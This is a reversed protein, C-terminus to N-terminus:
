GAEQFTQATGTDQNMYAFSSVTPNASGATPDFQPTTDYIVRTTTDINARLKYWLDHIFGVKFPGNCVMENSTVQAKAGIPVTRIHPVFCVTRYKMVSLTSLKTAWLTKDLRFGKFKYKHKATSGPPMLASFCKKFKFMETLTQFMYPTYGYATSTAANVAGSAATTVFQNYVGTAGDMYTAVISDITALETTSLDRKARFKYIDIYVPFNGLNTFDLVGWGKLINIPFDHGSNTSTAMGIEGVTQYYTPNSFTNLLSALLGPRNYSLEDSSWIRQQVWQTVSAAHLEVIQGYLFHAYSAQYKRKSFRKRYARRFRRRFSSRRYSGFRRRKTGGRTTIRRRRITRKYRRFPRRTIRRFRRFRSRYM